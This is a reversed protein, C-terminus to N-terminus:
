NFEKGRKVYGRVGCLSDLLTHLGKAGIRQDDESKMARSKQPILRILKSCYVILICRNRCYLILM